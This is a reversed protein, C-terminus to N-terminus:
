QMAGNLAKSLQAVAYALAVTNFTGALAWSRFFRRKQNSHWGRDDIEQIVGDKLDHHVPRRGSFPNRTHPYDIAVAAYKLQM